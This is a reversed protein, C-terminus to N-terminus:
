ASIHDGSAVNEQADPTVGPWIPPKTDAVYPCLMFPLQALPSVRSHVVDGPKNTVDDLWACRNIALEAVW